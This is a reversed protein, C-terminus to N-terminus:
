EAVEMVFAWYRPDYDKIEKETFKHKCVDSDYELRELWSNLWYKGTSNGQALYLYEGKSNTNPLKVYYLKENKLWEKDKKM